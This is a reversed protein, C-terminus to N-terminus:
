YMKGANHHASPSFLANNKETNNQERAQYLLSFAFCESESVLHMVVKMATRVAM